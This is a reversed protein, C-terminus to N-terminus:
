TIVAHLKHWFELINRQYYPALDGQFIVGANALLLVGHVFYVVNNHHSRKGRLRRFAFIIFFLSNILLFQLALPPNGKALVDYWVSWNTHKFLEVM